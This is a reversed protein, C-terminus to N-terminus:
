MVAQSQDTALQYSNLLFRLNDYGSVPYVGRLLHSGPPDSVFYPCTRPKGAPVIPASSSNFCDIYRKKLLKDPTYRRLGLNKLFAGADAEVQEAMGKKERITNWIEGIFRAAEWISEHEIFLQCPVEIPHIAIASNVYKEREGFPDVLWGNRLDLASGSKYFDSATPNGDTTEHVAKLLAAHLLGALKVKHGRGATLLRPLFARNFTHSVLRTGRYEPKPAGLDPRYVPLGIDPQINSDTRSNEHLFQISSVTNGKLRQGSVSPVHGTLATDGEEKKSLVISPPFLKNVEQGWYVEHAPLPKAIRAIFENLISRIGSGDTFVHHTHMLIDFNMIAGCELEGPRLIMYMLCYDGDDTPIPASRSVQDRLALWGGEQVVIRVTRKAWQRVEEESEINYVATDEDVVRAAVTPYKWRTQSFAEIARAKLESADFGCPKYSESQQISINAGIFPCNQGYLDKNFVTFMRELNALKRTAKQSGDLCNQTKWLYKEHNPDEVTFVPAEVQVSGM